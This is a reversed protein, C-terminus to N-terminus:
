ARVEEGPKTEREVVGTAAKKRTDGPRGRRRWDMFAVVRAGHMGAIAIIVQMQPTMEWGCQEILQCLEELEEETYIWGTYGTVEALVQGELRLPPKVVAPSIPIKGTVRKAAPPGEPPQEETLPPKLEGETPTIKIGKEEEMVTEVEIKDEKTEKAMVM